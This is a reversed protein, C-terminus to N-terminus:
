GIMDAHGVKRRCELHGCYHNTRRCSPICLPIWCLPWFVFLLILVAVITQVGIM